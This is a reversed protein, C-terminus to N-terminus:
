LTLHHVDYTKTVYQRFDKWINQSYIPGKWSRVPSRQGIWPGIELIVQDWLINSAQTIRLPARDYLSTKM